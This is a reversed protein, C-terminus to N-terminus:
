ICNVTCINYYQVKCVRAVRSVWPDAEPCNDSNKERFFVYIKENVPDKHRRAVFASIFTPEPLSCPLLPIVIIALGNLTVQIFMAVM